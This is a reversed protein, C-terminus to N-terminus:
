SALAAKQWALVGEALELLGAVYGRPYEADVKERLAEIWSLPHDDIFRAIKEEADEGGEGGALRRCLESLYLLEIGIHDECQNNENKVELGAERLLRRMRFTAEGFGVTAGDARNMTEWPAAAPAPPGIFLRTYEVAAQEIAKEEGLTQADFAYARLNSLGGEVHEGSFVIPFDEWFAPDLGISPTQNMPKLLSNGIFGYTEGLLMWTERNLANM